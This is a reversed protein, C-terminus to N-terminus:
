VAALPPVFLTSLGTVGAAPLEAVTCREVLPHGVPFPTAEYVTVEHARGYLEALREALSRLGDRNVRVSTVTDGIVSVQWLVLPVTVDPKKALELFDTADFCQLGDKGPDFALDVFLCDLASVGPLITARFGEARARRVAEHSSQDFVAPNGYTVVCVHLGMRVQELMAAVLAEYVEEHPRGAEYIPDLSEARPNLATIWTTPAVEALLYLVLDAHQIRVKAEQTVHLGPRIGSGVITLSGSVGEATASVGDTV